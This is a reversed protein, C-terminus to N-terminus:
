HVLYRVYAHFFSIYFAFHTFHNVKWFHIFINIVTFIFHCLTLVVYCAYSSVHMSIRRTVYGLPIMRCRELFIISKRRIITTRTRFKINNWLCSYNNSIRAHSPPPPMHKCAWSPVCQRTGRLRVCYLRRRCVPVCPVFVVSGSPAFTLLRM